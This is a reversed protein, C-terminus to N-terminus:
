RLVPQVQLVNESCPVAERVLISPGPVFV